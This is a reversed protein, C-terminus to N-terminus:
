QYRLSVRKPQNLGKREIPKAIRAERAKELEDVQKYIALFRTEPSKQRIIRKVDGVQMEVVAQYDKNFIKRTRVVKNIGQRWAAYQLTVQTDKPLERFPKLKGGHYFFSDKVIGSYYANMRTVGMINQGEDLRDTITIHFRKKLEQVSANTLGGLGSGSRSSDEPNGSSEKLFVSKMFTSDMKFQECNKVIQSHIRENSNLRELMKMVDNEIPTAFKIKWNKPATKMKLRQKKELAKRALEKWDKGVLRRGVQQKLSEVAKPMAAQILRKPMAPNRVVNPAGATNALMTLGMAMPIAKRGIKIISKKAERKFLRVRAQTRRM